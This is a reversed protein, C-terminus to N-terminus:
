HYHEFLEVGPLLCFHLLLETVPGAGTPLYQILLYNNVSMILLYEDLLGTLSVVLNM